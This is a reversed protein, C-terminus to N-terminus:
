THIFIDSFVGGRQAPAMVFLIIIAVTSILNNKNVKEAMKVRDCHPTYGSHM